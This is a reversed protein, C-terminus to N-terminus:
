FNNEQLFRNIANFIKTIWYADLGYKGGYGDTETAWIVKKTSIDFFVSFVEARKKPKDLSKIIFVLGIGNGEPLNYDALIKNIVEIGYVTYKAEYNQNRIQTVEENVIVKKKLGRKLKDLEQILFRSNLSPFIDIELLMEHKSSEHIITANSCDIGYFVVQNANIVDNKTLQQQGMLSATFLLFLFSFVTFSKKNM